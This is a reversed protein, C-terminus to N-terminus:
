FRGRRPTPPELMVHPSAAVHAHAKQGVRGAEETKDMGLIHACTHQPPINSAEGGGPLRGKTYNQFIFFSRGPTSPKRGPSHNRRKGEEPLFCLLKRYRSFVAVTNGKGANGSDLNPIMRRSLRRQRSLVALPTTPM